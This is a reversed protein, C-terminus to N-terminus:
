ILLRAQLIELAAKRRLYPMHAQTFIYPANRASFEALVCLFVGCDSNTSQLPIDKLTETRWGNDDFPQGKKDMHEDRLYKLLADLCAQNQGGMSDLYHIKKERFKTLCVDGYLLVCVKLTETRWGNDDFPQGKKDMHEDRLYKLLADLCAQNQGGMSDLYHIKKERFKTLCVDGYLLVCVKLTETRWGNDDFPQGKKDMHEDRLYKLLADLCAQNQGGMSDLYHIKKERFKILSLCWHVGLHVPVIMLDHAFIDVKKTWRKLGAHGSQMLKPYFFTNTAYVRPLHKREDSRLMLLNMYFNIVEDNVWNQGALTQVDRRHIRLNFKEVLLQGGPGPGFAKEIIAEQEHTLSPLEVSDVSLVSQGVPEEIQSLPLGLLNKFEDELHELKHEYNVKSIIDAERRASIIKNQTDINKTKYKSDLKSIWDKSTLAIDRFSDKLSNINEIKVSSTCTETKIPDYQESVENFKEAIIGKEVSNVVLIVEEEDDTYEAPPGWSPTNRENFSGMLKIPGTQVRNNRISKEHPVSTSPHGAEVQNQIYRVNKALRDKDDSTEPEDSANYPTTKTDDEFVLWNLFGRLRAVISQM